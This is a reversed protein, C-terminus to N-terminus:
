TGRISGEEAATSAPSPSSSSVSAQAADVGPAEKGPAVLPVAHPNVKTILTTLDVINLTLARAEDATMDPDADLLSEVILSRMGHITSIHQMVEDALIERQQEAILREIQDPAHIKIADIKRRRIEGELRILLLADSVRLTRNIGDTFTHDITQRPLPM